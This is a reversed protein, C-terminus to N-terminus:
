IPKDPTPALCTTSSALNTSETNKVDLNSVAPTPAVAAIIKENKERFLRQMLARRGERIITANEQMIALRKRDNRKRTQSLRINVPFRNRGDMVVQTVRIGARLM